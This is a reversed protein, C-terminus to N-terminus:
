VHNYLVTQKRKLIQRNRRNIKIISRIKLIFHVVISVHCWRGRMQRQRMLKVALMMLVVISMKLKYRRWLMVQWLSDRDLLKLLENYRGREAVQAPTKGDDNTITGDAGALMLTEVIDSHGYLCALHLPTNGDNDQVNIKHGRVYLLSLVETVDGRYSCAGHLQTYGLFGKSRWVALHLATNGDERYAINVDLDSVECLLYMSMSKSVHYCAITLSTNGGSDPLNVDAQCTEVLYKVTDLDDNFCAATLPTGLVGKNYNVDAATHGGLWKVVDLHGYECSEILAKSLVVVNNSFKSSLEIVEKLQGYKAANIFRERYISRKSSSM